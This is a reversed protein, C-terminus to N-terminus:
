EDEKVFHPVFRKSSKGEVYFDALDIECGKLLAAVLDRQKKPIKKLAAMCKRKDLLPTEELLEADLKMGGSVEYWTVYGVKGALADVNKKKMHNQMEAKLKAEAKEVEKKEERVQKLEELWANWRKTNDRKVEEVQGNM